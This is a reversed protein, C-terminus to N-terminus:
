RRGPLKKIVSTKHRGLTTPVQSGGFYFPQPSIQTDKPMKDSLIRPNYGQWIMGGDPDAIPM